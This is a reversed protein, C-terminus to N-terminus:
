MPSASWGPSAALKMMTTGAFTPGISRPRTTTAFRTSSRLVSVPTSTSEPSIGVVSCPMGSGIWTISMRTLRSFKKRLGVPQSVRLKTAVNKPSSPAVAVELKAAVASLQSLTLNAGLSRSIAPDFPKVPTPLFGGSFAITVCVSPSALM